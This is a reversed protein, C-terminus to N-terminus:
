VQILWNISETIETMLLGIGVVDTKGFSNEVCLVYVPCRINILKYTGDMFLVEPFLEFCKRMHEDQFVHRNGTQQILQAQLLKKNVKLKMLHRVNNKNDNTLRRQKPLQKFIEGSHNRQNKSSLQKNKSRFEQGGHICAYKIYYYRLNLKDEVTKYLNPAHYKASTITKADRKWFQVRNEKEFLDITDQLEKYSNFTDNIKLTM